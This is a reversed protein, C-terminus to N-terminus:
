LIRSRISVKRLFRRLGCVAGRLIPNHTARFSQHYEQTFWTMGIRDRIITTRDMWLKSRRQIFFLLRGPVKSFCLTLRIIEFLECLHTIMLEGTRVFNGYKKHMLDLVLHNRSDRCQFVHWLKTVVALRPGPFHKLRHFFLRYVTISCFLAMLYWGFLEIATLLSGYREVPHKWTRVGWTLFIFAIHFMVLAPARLHWKGKIFVGHHALIGLIIAIFFQLPMTLVSPLRLLDSM